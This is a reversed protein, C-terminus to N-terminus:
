QSTGESLFVKSSFFASAAAPLGLGTPPYNEVKFRILDNERFLIPCSLIESKPWRTAVVSLYTM